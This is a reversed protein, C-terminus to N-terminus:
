MKDRVVCVLSGALFGGGWGVCAPVAGGALAAVVLLAAVVPLRLLGTTARLASRHRTALWLSAVHLGGLLFGMAFWVPTAITIM